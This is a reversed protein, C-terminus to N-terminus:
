CFCPLSSCCGDWYCPPHCMVGGEIASSGGATCSGCYWSSHDRGGGKKQRLLAAQQLLPRLLLSPSVHRCTWGVERAAYCNGLLLLAKWKVGEKLLLAAPQLLKGLIM